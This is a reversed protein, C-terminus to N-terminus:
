HGLALEFGSAKKPDVVAAAQLAPAQAMTNEWCGAAM